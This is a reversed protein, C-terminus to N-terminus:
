LRVKTGQELIVGVVSLLIIVIAILIIIMFNKIKHSM